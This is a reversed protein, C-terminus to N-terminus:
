HRKQWNARIFCICLIGIVCLIISIPTQRTPSTEQADKTKSLDYSNQTSSVGQSSVDSGIQGSQEPRNLNQESIITPASTIILDSVNNLSMYGSKQSESPSYQSSPYIIESSMPSEPQPKLNYPPLTTIVPEPQFLDIQTNTVNLPNNNSDYIEEVLIDLSGEGEYGIFALRSAPTKNLNLGYIRAYGEDNKINVNGIFPSLPYFNTIQIAKSFNVQCLYGKIIISNESKVSIFHSSGEREIFLETAQVSTVLLSFILISFFLQRKM